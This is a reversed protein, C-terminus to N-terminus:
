TFCLVKSECGPVLMREPKAVRQMLRLCARLRKPPTVTASFGYLLHLHRLFNFRTRFAIPERVCHRTRCRSNPQKLQIGSRIPSPASSLFICLSVPPTLLVFCAQLGLLSSDRSGSAGTQSAFRPSQNASQEEEASLDVHMIPIQGTRHHCFIRGDLVRGRCSQNRLMIQRKHLVKQTHHRRDCSPNLEGSTKPAM